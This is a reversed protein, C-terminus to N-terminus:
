LRAHALSSRSGTCAGQVTSRAASMSTLQQRLRTRHRSITLKRKPCELIQVAVGRKGLPSLTLPSAALVQLDHPMPQRQAILSSGHDIGTVQLFPTRGKETCGRFLGPVEPCGIM